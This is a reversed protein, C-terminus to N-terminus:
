TSGAEPAAGGAPPTAAGEEEEGGRRPAHVSAVMLDHSEGRMLEVLECSEPLKLNSLHITDGIDLGSMDVSIYEPLHRPLVEIEVEILEHSVVGGAKVGPSADQGVFHLPVHVRIPQNEDVRMFDMHMILPKAPHRQVDRLIAKNVKGGVNVTLIHSYFAEHELHKRVENHNLAITQPAESGGYLIAPVKGDRRLRRSAGKGADLRVEAEVEFGSM